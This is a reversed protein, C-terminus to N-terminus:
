KEQETKDENVGLSDVDDNDEDYRELDAYPDAEPLSPAASQGKYCMYERIGRVLFDAALAAFVFAVVVVAGHSFILTVFLCIVAAILLVLRFFLGHRMKLKEHENPTGINKKETKAVGSTVVGTNQRYERKANPDMSSEGQFISVFCVSENRVITSNRFTVSVSM